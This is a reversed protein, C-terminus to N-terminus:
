TSADFDYDTRFAFSAILLETGKPQTIRRTDAEVNWGQTRGDASLYRYIQDGLQELAEFQAVGAFSVPKAVWVELRDIRVEQENGVSARSIAGADGIWYSDQILSNPQRDHSFAQQARALSVPPQELVLRWAAIISALDTTAM